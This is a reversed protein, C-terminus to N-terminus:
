KLIDKKMNLTVKTNNSRYDFMLDGTRRYLRIYNLPYWVVMKGVEIRSLIDIQEDNNALTVIRITSKDKIRLKDFYVDDGDETRIEIVGSKNKLFYIKGINKFTEPFNRSFSPNSKRIAEQAATGPFVTGDAKSLNIAAFLGAISSEVKQNIMERNKRILMDAYNMSGGSATQPADEVSLGSTNGFTGTLVVGTEGDNYLGSLRQRPDNYYQVNKTKGDLNMHLAYAVANDTATNFNAPEAWILRGQPRFAAMFVDKGKNENKINRGQITLNESFTGALVIQNRSDIILSFGTADNSSQLQHAWLIEMDSNLAAVFGQRKDNASTIRTNQDGFETTFYGTIYINGSVDTAMDRFNNGRYGGYEFVKNWVNESLEYFYKDADVIWSTPTINAYDPMTLGIPANVFTPDAVVFEKGDILVYDGPPNGNEFHVATALHEPYLLAAVQKHAFNRVLWAFLVARDDCDSYAYHVVEDPLMYRQGGFHEIDTQYEFSTQVMRLLFNVKQTENMNELLPTLVNECSQVFTNSADADLYINMHAQPQDALVDILVPDYQLTIEYYDEEFPFEITKEKGQLAFDPTKYFNMDFDKFAGKMSESYTFVRADSNSGILYYTKQQLDIRPTNYVINSFPMLLVLQDEQRALRIDYGAQLLLFWTYLKTEQKRDKALQASLNHTLVYLAWDNMGTEEAIELISVLTPTFNKEAVATFWQAIQEETIGNSKAGPLSRDVDVRFNRGYFYVSMQPINRKESEKPLITIPAKFKEKGPITAESPTIRGIAVNGRKEPETQNYDPIVDPKPDTEPQAGQLTQRKEWDQRLYEAYERNRKEVYDEFDKKMAQMVSDRENVFSKFDQEQQKKFEEFGQDQAFNMMPFLMGVLLCIIIKRKM